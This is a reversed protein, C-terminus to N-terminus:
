LPGEWPLLATHSSSFCLSGLGSGGRSSWMLGPPSHGTCMRPRLTEGQAVTCHVLYPDLPCNTLLPRVTSTSPGRGAGGAPRAGPVPPWTDLALSVKLTTLGKMELGPLCDNARGGLLAEEGALGVLRRWFSSM